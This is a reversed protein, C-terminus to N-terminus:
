RKHVCADPFRTDDMLTLRFPNMVLLSLWLILVYGSEWTNAEDLNVSELFTLVPVLWVIDHPMRKVVEKRGRVKFIHRLYKLSLHKLPLLSESSSTRFTDLCANIMEEMHPDLLHPQEQYRDLIMVFTEYSKEVSATNQFVDQLSRLLALVEDKESFMELACGLGIPAEFEEDEM